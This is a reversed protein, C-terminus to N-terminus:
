EAWGHFDRQFVSAQSYAEDGVKYRWHVTFENMDRRTNGLDFYLDLLAHTGPGLRAYTKRAGSVVMGTCRLVEGKRDVIHAEHGDLELPEETNNQVNLGVRVTRVKRAGVVRTTVGRAFVEFHSSMDGNPLLGHKWATVEGPKVNWKWGRPKYYEQEACGMAGVSIWACTALLFYLRMMRAGRLLERRTM